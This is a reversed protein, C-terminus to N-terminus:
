MKEMDWHLTCFKRYLKEKWGPSFHYRKPESDFIM